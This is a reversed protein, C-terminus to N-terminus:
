CGDCCGYWPKASAEPVCDLGEPFVLVFEDNVYSYAQERLGAARAYLAAIGDKESIMLDDTRVTAAGGDRVLQTAISDIADAAALHTSDDNVDLLTEIEEDTFYYPEEKDPILLRVLAIDAETAM